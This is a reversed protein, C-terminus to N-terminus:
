HEAEELKELYETEMEVKEELEESYESTISHHEDHHHEHHEVHHDSHHEESDDDDYSNSGHFTYRGSEVDDICSQLVDLKDALKMLKKAIDIYAEEDTM